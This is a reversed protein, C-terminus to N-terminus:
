IHYNYFDETIPNGEPPNNHGERFEVTEHIIDDCHIDRFDSKYLDLPESIQANPDEKKRYEDLLPRNIPLGEHEARSLMWCLTIFALGTSVNKGGGIDSHAGRFWVEEIHHTNAHPAISNHIFRPFVLNIQRTFIKFFKNPKLELIRTLPFLDRREDLAMAHHYNKVNTAATFYWFLNIRNGPIGFSAVADWIGVFRIPAEPYKKEIENAFHLAMAAGRSFGIIDIEVDGLTFNNKLAVFAEKIRKSAGLGFFGGFFAGIKGFRTGVGSCYFVNGIYAEKFRVVNSDNKDLVEDKNWTGDFAYLAM